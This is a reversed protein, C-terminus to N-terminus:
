RVANNKEKYYKCLSNLTCEACKPRQSSCVRRGHYLIYHHADSWQEIPIKEMLQQEAAEPTKANVLGLRNSVRFVHTDVAIAPINFANALVVSATKRGVGALSQLEERTCPVNGGFKEVIEKCCIIINKSKTNYFGCSKIYPILQDQTMGAISKADPHDRFLAPTCQNVRKDTCQASLITAILLEFANAFELEPKANPYAVALKSLVSDYWQRKNDM